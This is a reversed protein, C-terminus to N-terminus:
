LTADWIASLRWNGIFQTGSDGPEELRAPVQGPQPRRAGEGPLAQGALCGVSRAVQGPRRQEGNRSARAHEGGRSPLHGVDRVRAHVRDEFLDRVIQLPYAGLSEEAGNRWRARDHGGIQGPTDAPATQAHPAAGPPQEPHELLHGSGEMGIDGHGVMHRAALARPRALGSQGVLALGAWHWSSSLAYTVSSRSRTVPEVSSSRCSWTRTL